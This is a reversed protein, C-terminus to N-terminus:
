VVMDVQQIYGANGAETLYYSSAKVQGNFQNGEGKLDFSTETAGLYIAGIDMSSLEDLSDNDASKNWLKLDKFISDGEDIYNNGDEDYLALDAFGNGSLAGFLESGDNIIGDNNKDLALMAGQEFYSIMDENGDADIDFAFKENSLEAANGPYNIILPDKFMINQSFETTSTYSYERQMNMDLDFSIQQGDLTTITGSSNFSLSEKEEITETTKLSLQLSIGGGLGKYEGPLDSDTSPNAAGDEVAAIADDTIGDVKTMPQKNQLSIAELLQRFMKISTLLQQDMSDLKDEATRFKLGEKTMVLISNNSEEESNNSAGNAAQTSANGNLFQSILTNFQESTSTLADNQESSDNNIGGSLESFNINSQSSFTHTESKEHKSTMNVESNQIIM